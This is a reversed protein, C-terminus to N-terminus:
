PKQSCHCTQAQAWEAQIDARLRMRNHLHNNHEICELEVLSLELGNVEFARSPQPPCTCELGVSGVELFDLIKLRKAEFVGNKV